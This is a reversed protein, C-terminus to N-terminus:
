SLTLLTAFRCCIAAVGVIHTVNSVGTEVLGNDLRNGSFAVSYDDRWNLESLIM